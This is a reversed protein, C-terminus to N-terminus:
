DVLESFAFKSSLAQTVFQPHRNSLCKGPLSPRIFFLLSTYFRTDLSPFLLWTDHGRCHNKGRGEVEMQLFSPLPQMGQHWASEQCNEVTKTRLPLKCNGVNSPPQPLILAAHYNFTKDEELTDHENTTIRCRRCISVTYQLDATLPPKKCQADLGCQEKCWSGTLDSHCLADQQQQCLFSSSTIQNTM